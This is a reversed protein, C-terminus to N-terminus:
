EEPLIGEQWVNNFYATLEIISNDDLSILAKKTVQHIGPATHRRVAHIAATVEHIHIDQDLLENSEGTYPPRAENPEDPCYPTKLAALLQKDGGPFAYIIRAMNQHSEM